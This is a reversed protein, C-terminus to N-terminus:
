NFYDVATVKEAYSNIIALVKQHEPHVRYIDLTELSEFESVLVIDSARESPNVNTGVEIFKLEDILSKLNELSSKIKTTAAEKESSSLSSQLKIM